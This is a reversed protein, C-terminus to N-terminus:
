VRLRAGERSLCRGDPWVRVQHLPDGDPNTPDYALIQVCDKGDGPHPGSAPSLYFLDVLFEWQARGEAVIIELGYGSQRVTVTGKRDLDDFVFIASVQPEM